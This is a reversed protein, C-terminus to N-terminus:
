LLHVVKSVHVSFNAPIVANSIRLSILKPMRRLVNAMPPVLDDNLTGLMSFFYVNDMPPAICGESFVVQPM